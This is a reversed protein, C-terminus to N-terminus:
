NTAYNSWGLWWTTGGSAAPGVYTTVEWSGYRYAAVRAGLLPPVVEGGISANPASSSPPRWDFGQGNTGPSLSTFLDTTATAARHNSGSFKDVQFFRTPDVDYNGSLNESLVMNTISLSDRLRLSDTWADRGNLGIGPWRAVIGRDLTGGTGRRLVVGNGDTPFGPVTTGPGIIAFNAFVPGSYPTSAELDTLTCFSGPAPDCGDAEIGRPDASQTGAGQLRTSQFAVLFQNRGRYGETWDFHDDGSEYSLLYRGDVAGGWWEFSDDLGAMVEVYELQTQSGVAYMSLGNLEQGQGNSIDFGAFEIRVYRLTGSNDANNTGGAYNEAEGAVGGETLIAAGGSNRNIIGNGIVIIGGWDGPARAGAPRQSTFVIPQAATGNAEIRAGRLIWLSSGPALTDGVIRTGPEITLVAGNAVKVYGSITYTTDAFLTRSATIDANIVAAGPQPNPGPGTDGDDDSCGALAIGAAVLLVFPPRPALM